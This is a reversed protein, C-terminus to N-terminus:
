RAANRDSRLPTWMSIDRPAALLEDLADHWEKRYPRGIQVNLVDDHDEWTEYLLFVNKQEPHAHLVVQHFMPEHRMEDLVHNLLRHFRELQEPKVDFRILYTVAM